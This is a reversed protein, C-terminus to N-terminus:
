LIVKISFIGGDLGSASIEGKHLNIIEKAISLGIGSGEVNSARSQDMRYFREFCENLSGENIGDADNNIYIINKDISIEVRSICYKSANDILIYFLQRILAENGKYIYSGSINYIREVNKLDLSADFMAAVDALIDVLDFEENLEYTSEDLRSLMILNKVMSNMKVIQKSIAHTCENGGGEIEIMENNASIITLPTKLEHGANTIFMRQKEYSLAIPKVVRKSLFFVLLFVCLVGSISIIISYLLFSNAQSLQRTCDVFVVLTRDSFETVKYRYSDIYGKKNNLVENAYDIATNIDVAAIQSVNVDIFDGRYTVTFFRTEFPTEENFQNGLGNGGPKNPPGGRSGFRGDNESIETLVKDTYRNVNVYNMANIATMIIFLVVVVSIMTILIFRIRLKKIM